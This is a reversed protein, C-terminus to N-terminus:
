KPHVLGLEVLYRVGKLTILNWGKTRQALGNKVLEDRYSKAILNGDWTTGNFLQLLQEVYGNTTMPKIPEEEDRPWAPHRPKPEGIHDWYPGVYTIGKGCSKCIAKMGATLESTM